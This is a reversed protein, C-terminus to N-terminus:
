YTRFHDGHPAIRFSGPARERLGDKHVIVHTGQETFSELLFTAPTIRAAPSTADCPGDWLEAEGKPSARKKRHQGAGEGTKAIGHNGHETEIAFIGHLQVRPRNKGCEIRIVGRRCASMKQM